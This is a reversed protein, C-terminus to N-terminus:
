FALRARTWVLSGGAGPDGFKTDGKGLQLLAGAGLDLGNGFNYNVEPYIVASFGESSVPSHHTRVREGRDTDYVEETMGSLDLINFLRVLFANNALKLDVGIVLYDAIRPRYLERACTTGDRPLACQVLTLAESTTVGAARVARGDSIFDGAGFEDPLGHVWQANVYFHAGFTYDLGVVWKAFPTDEVVAPRPGGPLGDGDYDYEGAPQPQVPLDLEDQTLAITAREPFILAAELRYGLGLMSSSIWELPIEGSANLGAVHMRPYGLMATTKLLGVICRSMDDPDCQAATKDYRTHNAFAVPFDTRGYYYSLAVDQEFVTDAIRGSVAMNEFSPEPLVPIAAELTTPSRIAGGSSAATESEVRWRLNDDVFPLRDIQAAYLPASRPLLAPKFLPALVASISLDDTLWYDLRTMFTAAQKGFLLVDRLDDPNLNNTPNFQDGVGWMVTQQGVRLDLGATFLDKVDIYLANAEIRVPHVTEFRTIDDVGAIELAFADAVVDLQAVGKFRGFVADVKLALTSQAREIGDALELRDYYDGVSERKIRFQLDAQIRGGHSVILEDASAGTATVAVAVLLLLGRRM